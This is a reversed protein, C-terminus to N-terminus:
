GAGETGDVEVVDSMSIDITEEGGIPAIKVMAEGHKGEFFEVARVRVVAFIAEKNLKLAKNANTTAM